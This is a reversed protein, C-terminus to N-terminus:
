GNEKFLERLIGVYYRSCVQVTSGAVIASHYHKKGLGGIYYVQGKWEFMVLAQTGHLSVARVMCTHYPADHAISRLYKNAAIRTYRVHNFVLKNYIMVLRYWHLKYVRTGLKKAIAQDLETDM